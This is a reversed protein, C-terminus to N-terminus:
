QRVPYKKRPKHAKIVWYLRPSIADSPYLKFYTKSDFQKEKRVKALETPFKNLLTTTPDHDIVKLKGTQEEIKQIVDEEKIVPFGAGKDFPYVSINRNHRMETLVKREVFSLNSKHKKKLDKSEAM